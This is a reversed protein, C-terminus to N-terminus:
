TYKLNGLICSAVHIFQYLKCYCRQIDDIMWFVIIISQTVYKADSGLFKWQCIQDM